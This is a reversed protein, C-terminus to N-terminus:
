VLHHEMAYRAAAARSSVQIKRYISTLHANVTRSSIVLHEAIQADTWGQALLRLVEVERPTLDDPYTAVHDRLTSKLLELVMVQNRSDSLWTIILTRYTSSVKPLAEGMEKKVVTSLREMLGANSSLWEPYSQQDHTTNTLENCIWAGFSANFLHCTDGECLLLGRKQLRTLTQDSRAYLDQLQKLTCLRGDGQSQQERLALATLVIKEQENSVRWYHALHPMAEDHFAKYLFAIREEPGLKGSYAEFLFFCAAQLFYPHSGAVRLIAAIEANTFSITTEALALSILHRAEAQAFLRLNINAFINFFPSSRIAESHCLDILERRSSTILALHHHIALSRLGYFFDPGFNPNETVHEFEDLLLVVYQEHEDVSTFVDALVFPDISETERIQDFVQKVESQQCSRAMQQLLRQWLRAPTMDKSVMQLDVYVFLYTDPDLEHTRRVAPHALYNLLSTKGMRREGVVSSSEFEVNRLRSFIQEVERERGVFRTPDSIPNGYTFPNTSLRPTVRPAALGSPLAPIERAAQLSPSALTNGAISQAPQVPPLHGATSQSLPDASRFPQTSQSAQELAMAFTQVSAFRAKPDKALARLVVQEVEASVTPVRERLPPPPLSVHKVMVESMSGEFPREGCLWEYVVVALAYQDSAPRPHGEIQEPAMYPLTGGTTQARLSFTSHAAVAIGFDSLLVEDGRGLLMNEPKIDRHIVKQTHAYQLAGAIQKVYSVITALSLVMDKPYRQRLTGNPAYEMVLFPVDNEIGFELIRVIAPHVLHAIMRAEARFREVETGELHTHLVKIAAQTGLHLHEGLYIEASGGQGLLRVLRYNGLRQGVRDAM